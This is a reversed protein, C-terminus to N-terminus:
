FQRATNSVGFLVLEVGNEKVVVVLVVLALAVDPGVSAGALDLLLPRLERAFAPIPIEQATAPMAAIMAM